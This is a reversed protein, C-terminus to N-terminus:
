FPMVSRGLDLLLQPALRRCDPGSADFTPRLGTAALNAQRLWSLLTHYVHAHVAHDGAFPKELIPDTHTWDKYLKTAEVNAGLIRLRAEFLESGVSPASQDMTGHVLALRPLFTGFRHGVGRNSIRACEDTPSHRAVDDSFVWRFLAKSFGRAIWHVATAEVHYPGSIGVFGLVDQASWRPVVGGFCAAEAKRVLLLSCLHAGASQGALLVKRRDGGLAEAHDLVWGVARDVDDLMGDIRAQPCNRYDPAVVVIGQAALARGVPVSWAKYGIVWAGGTVFVVIPRGSSDGAPEYVDVLQRLGPGYPVNKRVRRLWYWVQVVIRRSTLLPLSVSSALAPSLFLAFLFIKAVMLIWLPSGWAGLYALKLALWLLTRAQRLVLRGGRMTTSIARGVLGAKRSM